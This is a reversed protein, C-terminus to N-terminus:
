KVRVQYSASLSEGANLVETWEYRIQTYMAVPAAVRKITGDAQRQEITPQSSFSKGGDISYTITASKETTASGAVFVTGTPILGITKYDRAPASGQNASNITWKVIEGPNVTGAEEVAINHKNREIMGVLQVKVEPKASAPMFNQRQAFSAAGCIVLLCLGFATLLNKKTKM